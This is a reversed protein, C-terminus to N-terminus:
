NNVRPHKKSVAPLDFEATAAIQVKITQVEPLQVATYHKTVGHVVVCYVPRDQVLVKRIKPLVKKTIVRMMGTAAGNGYM